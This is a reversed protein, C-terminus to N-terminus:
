SFAPHKLQEFLDPRHKLRTPTVGFWHACERTLHSQDSYGVSLAVEVLPYNKIILRGAERIRSLRLWYSPTLNTEEVILRQLTRIHVGLEKAAQNISSPNSALCELTDRTNESLSAFENILDVIDIESVRLRQLNSLLSQEDLKVGPSLRFGQSYSGAVSAIEKASDFYPSIFWQHSQDPLVKLIVDRCGDPLVTVYHTSSAFSEWKDIIIRSM